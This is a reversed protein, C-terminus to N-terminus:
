FNNSTKTWFDDITFTEFILFPITSICINRNIKIEFGDVNFEDPCLFSRRDRVQGTIGFHIKELNELNTM